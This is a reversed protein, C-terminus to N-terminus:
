AAGAAKKNAAERMHDYRQRKAADTLTAHATSLLKFLQEQAGRLAPGMEPAVKDPHHKLALSRFAAKAAAVSADPALGMVAYHDVLGGSMRLRARADTLKARWGALDAEDSGDAAALLEELDHVASDYDGMSAFIDARRVRAKTFNPDLALAASCDSAADLYRGQAHLVAARNSHLVARVSEMDATGSAAALGASYETAAEEWRKEKFCANGRARAADADRRRRQPAPTPACAAVAAAVHSKVADEFQERLKSLEQEAAELGCQLTANTAKSAALEARLSAMDASVTEMQAALRANHRSLTDVTGAMAARGADARAAAAEAAVARANARSVEDNALALAAALAAERTSASASPVPLAVPPPPPPAAVPVRVVVEPRQRSAETAAATSASLRALQQPLSL